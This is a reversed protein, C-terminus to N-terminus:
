ENVGQKEMHREHGGAEKWGEHMMAKCAKDYPKACPMKSNNGMVSTGLVVAALIWLLVAIAYGFLKLGQSDAKRASLLVFFSVTLLALVKVIFCGAMCYM